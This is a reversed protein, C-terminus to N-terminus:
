AEKPCVSIEELIEDNEIQTIIDVLANGMGLVKAM